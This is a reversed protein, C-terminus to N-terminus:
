EPGGAGWGSQLSVRTSPRLRELMAHQLVPLVMGMIYTLAENLFGQDILFSRDHASDLFCLKPILLNCYM